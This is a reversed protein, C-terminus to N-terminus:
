WIGPRGTPVKISFWQIFFFFFLVHILATATVCSSGRQEQTCGRWIRTSLPFSSLFRLLPILLLRIIFHTKILLPVFPCVSRCVWGHETRSRPGFPVQPGKLTLLYMKWKIYMYTEMVNWAGTLSLYQVQINKFIGLYVELDHVLHIERSKNEEEKGSVLYWPSKSLFTHTM